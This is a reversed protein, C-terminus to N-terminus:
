LKSRSPDVDQGKMIKLILAIRSPWPLGVGSAVGM